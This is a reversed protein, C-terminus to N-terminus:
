RSDERAIIEFQAAKNENDDPLRVVSIVASNDTIVSFVRRFSEELGAENEYECFVFLRIMALWDSAYYVMGVFQVYVQPSTQAGDFEAEVLLPSGVLSARLARVASVGNGTVIWGRKGAAGSRM